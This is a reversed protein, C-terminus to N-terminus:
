RILFNEARSTVAHFSHMALCLLCFIVPVKLRNKLVKTVTLVDGHFGCCGLVVNDSRFLFFVTPLGFVDLLLWCNTPRQHTEPM